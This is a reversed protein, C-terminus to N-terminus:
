FVAEDNYTEIAKLLNDADMRELGARFLDLYLWRTQDSTTGSKHNKDNSIALLRPQQLDSFSLVM